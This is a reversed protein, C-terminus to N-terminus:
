YCWGTYGRESNLNQGLFIIGSLKMSIDRFKFPEGSVKLDGNPRILSHIKMTYNEYHRVFGVWGFDYNSM